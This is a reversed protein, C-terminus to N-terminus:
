HCGASAFTAETVCLVPAKGGADWLCGTSEPVYPSTSSCGYCLHSTGGITSSSGLGIIESFAVPCVPPSVPPTGKDAPGMDAPPVTADGPPVMGDVSGRVQGDGGDDGGDCASLALAAVLVFAGLARM